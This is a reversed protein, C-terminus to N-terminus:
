SQHSLLLKNFLIMRSVKESNIKMFKAPIEKGLLESSPRNLLHVSNCLIQVKVKNKRRGEGSSDSNMEHRGHQVATADTSNSQELKAVTLDGRRRKNHQRSGFLLNQM